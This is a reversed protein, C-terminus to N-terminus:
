KVGSLKTARLMERKGSAGAIKEIGFGLQQMNRKLNGSVAYTVFVGNRKLYRCVHDLTQITWMDPQVGASFADFYIVDFRKDSDFALVKQQLIEWDVDDSFSIEKQLAEEYKKTFLNWIELGVYQQYGSEAIVGVGLPFAEVGTYKLHIRNDQCYQASLLFNLGTGFGVELVSILNSGNQLLSFQLGSELFVHRSEQVAGYLSHYYEGTEPHLLTNSGDATAIYQIGNM